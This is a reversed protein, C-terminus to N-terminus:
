RLIIDGTGLDFHGRALFLRRDYLITEIFQDLAALTPDLAASTPDLGASTQDLAASTRGLAASTQDLAM